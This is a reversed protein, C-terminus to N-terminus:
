GLGETFRKYRRLGETLTERDTVYALRVRNDFFNHRGSSLETLPLVSVGEERLLRESFAKANIPTKPAAYFAGGLEYGLLHGIYESVLDRRKGFEGIMEKEWAETEPNMIADVIGYQSPTNVSSSAQGTVKAVQDAVNKLTEPFLVFGIRLGTAAWAKSAGSLIITGEPYYHAISRFKSDYCHLWYIEDALILVNYRRALQAIGKLEEEGAKYGTPNDPDTMFMAKPGQKFADELADLRYSLNDKDRPVFINSGGFFQVQEGYSEWHPDFVVFKDDKDVITGMLKFITDKPGSTVVINSPAFTLGQESLYYHAVAERLQPLGAQHTYGTKEQDLARKIAEAVNPPITFDPEGIHFEFIKEGKAKLAEVRALLSLTPSEAMSVARKAIIERNM